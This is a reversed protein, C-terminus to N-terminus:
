RDLKSDKIQIRGDTRGDTRMTQLDDTRQSKLDPRVHTPSRDSGTRLDTGSPHIIM